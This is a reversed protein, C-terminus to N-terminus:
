SESKCFNKLGRKLAYMAVPVALAAPFNGLVALQASIATLLLNLAERSYEDVIESQFEEQCIVNRCNQALKKLFEPKVGTGLRTLEQELGAEVILVEAADELNGGCEEIVQLGMLADPSDPLAARILNIESSTVIM